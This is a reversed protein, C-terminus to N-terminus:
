SSVCVFCNLSKTFPIMLIKSKCTPKSITHLPVIGCEDPKDDDAENQVPKPKAKDVSTSLGAIVVIVLAIIVLYWIAVKFGSKKM